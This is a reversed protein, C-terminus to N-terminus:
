QRKDLPRPRLLLWLTLALLGLALLALGILGTDNRILWYVDETDPEVEILEVNM